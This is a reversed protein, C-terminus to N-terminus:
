LYMTTVIHSKNRQFLTYNWKISKLITIGMHSQLTCLESMGKNTFILQNWFPIEALLPHTGISQMHGVYSLFGKNEVM